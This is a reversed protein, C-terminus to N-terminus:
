LYVVTIDPKGDRYFTGMSKINSETGNFIISDLESILMSGDVYLQKNSVVETGTNDTVVKVHGEAYCLIDVPKGYVKKGTGDRRVFPKVQAPLKMFSKLSNYM